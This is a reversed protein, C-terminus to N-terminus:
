HYMKRLVHECSQIYLKLYEKLLRQLGSSMSGAIYFMESM